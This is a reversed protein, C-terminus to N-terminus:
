HAKRDIGHALLKDQSFKQESYLGYYGSLLYAAACGLTLLPLCHGGFLEAALLVSALPANTMACFLAVMGLAAGFPAPLGLLPAAVCGFTAGTFFVPVIEGGKYGAGLTLATFLMKCLFAWPLATGAMAAVIVQGGAGNYDTTGLLLSLAAVLAGGVAVRLYPNPLVRAYLKPATHLLLCFAVGLVAVLVGLALTGALTAPTIALDLELAFATPAVGLCGALWVGVLASLLCPLLAAYPLQGVTIVELTFVTAALPTGFIASFAGSMGCMTLVRRGNEDLHLRRAMWNALSGGLQLAAGERGASGGFLHTLLTSVFILPATRLPMPTDERVALFVANTSGGGPQGALHYLAVIALGGLPLLWLLWPHLGRLETVYELGLGFVAGAPGVVCGVLVALAVWKCFALLTPKLKDLDM